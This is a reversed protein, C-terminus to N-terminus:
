RSAFWGVVNVLVTMVLSAILMAKWPFFVRFRQRPGQEDDTLTKSIKEQLKHEVKQASKPILLPLVNILITLVVSAIIFQVFFDPM